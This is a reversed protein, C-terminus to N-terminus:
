KEGSKAETSELATPLFRFPNSDLPLRAAPTCINPRWPPLEALFSSESHQICCRERGSLVKVSGWPYMVLIAAVLQAGEARGWCPEVGKHRCVSGGSAVDGNLCGIARNVAIFCSAFEGNNLNNSKARCQSRQDAYYTNVRFSDFKLGAPIVERSPRILNGRWRFKPVRQLVGRRTSAGVFSRSFGNWPLRPPALIVSPVRAGVNKQIILRACRPRNTTPTWKM